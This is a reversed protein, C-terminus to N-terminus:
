MALTRICDTMFLFKVEDALLKIPTEKLKQSLKLLVVRLQLGHDDSDCGEWCWPERHGLWSAGRGAAHVKPVLTFHPLATTTFPSPGAPGAGPDGRARAAERSTLTSCLHV